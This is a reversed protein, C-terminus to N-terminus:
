TTAAKSDELRSLGQVWLRRILWVPGVVIITFFAWDLLFRGASIEVSERGEYPNIRYEAPTVGRHFDAYAFNFPFGFGLHDREAPSHATQPLAATLAVLVLALFALAVYLMPWLSVRQVRPAIEEVYDRAQRRSTM